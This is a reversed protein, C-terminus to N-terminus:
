RASLHGLGAPPVAGAVLWRVAVGGAGLAYIIPYVVETNYYPQTILAQLGIWGAFTIWFLSTWPPNSKEGRSNPIFGCTLTILVCFVFATLESPFVPNPNWRFPIGCPVAALLFLLTQLVRLQIM